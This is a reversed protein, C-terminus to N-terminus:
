LFFIFCKSNHLQTNNSNNKEWERCLLNLINWLWMFNWQTLCTQIDWSRYKENKRTAPSHENNRESLRMEREKKGLFKNSNDDDAVVTAALHIWISLLFVCQHDITLTSIKNFQHCETNNAAGCYYIYENNHQICELFLFWLAFSHSFYHTASCVVSLLSFLFLYVVLVHRIVCCIFTPLQLWVVSPCLSYIFWTCNARIQYHQNTSM